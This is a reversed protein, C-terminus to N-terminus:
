NSEEIAFGHKQVVSKESVRNLLMGFPVITGYPTTGLKPVAVVWEGSLFPVMIM